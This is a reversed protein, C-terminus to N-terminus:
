HAPSPSPQQQRNFKVAVYFFISFFTVVAILCFEIMDKDNSSIFIM